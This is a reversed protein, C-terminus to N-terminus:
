TLTQRMIRIALTHHSKCANGFGTTHANDDGRIILGEDGTIDVIGNYNLLLLGGTDTDQATARVDLRVHREDLDLHLYDSGHIFRAHIQYPYDPASIISGSYPIFPINLLSPTIALPTDIEIQFLTLYYSADVRDLGSVQATFAPILAPFHSLKM